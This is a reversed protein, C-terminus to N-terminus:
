QRSERSVTFRAVNGERLYPNIDFPNGDVVLTVGPANGLFVVIPGRGEVEVTRGSRALGFFLRRGDADTVETWSDGSYAFQMRVNGPIPESPPQAVVERTATDAPPIDTSEEVVTPQPARRQTTPVQVPVPSPAVTGNESENGVVPLRTVLAVAVLAILLLVVVIAVIRSSHGDSEVGDGTGRSVVLPPPAVNGAARVYDALVNDPAIGLLKCYAGLYGKVFIPAPLKAFDDAELATIVAPDLRLARAVDRVERGQAERAGRLVAGPGPRTGSAETDVVEFM